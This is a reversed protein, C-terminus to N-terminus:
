SETAFDYRMTRCSQLSLLETHEERLTNMHKTKYIEVFIERLIAL